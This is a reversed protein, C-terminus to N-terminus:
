EGKMIAANRFSIAKRTLEKAAKSGSDIEELIYRAIYIVDQYKKMKFFGNAQKVLYNIKEQDTKMTGAVKLAETMSSTQKPGCGNLILAVVVCLMILVFSFKRM